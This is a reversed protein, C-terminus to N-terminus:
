TKNDAEDVFAQTRNVNLFLKSFVCCHVNVHATASFHQEHVHNSNGEPTTSSLKQKECM